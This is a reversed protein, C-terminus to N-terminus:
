RSPPAQGASAIEILRELSQAPSTFHGGGDKVRVATNPVHASLWAGHGAPVMVDRAGYEIVVPARAGEPNFRWPSALAVFDDIFGWPGTRVAEIMALATFGATERLIDLDAKPLQIPGLMTIPDQRAREVLRELDPTLERAAADRGESAARFRRVNEPDMGEFFDLGSADLPAVGVVCHVVTCREPLLTAAALAHPGGGSAGVVGLREVGGADLLATIDAASDAIARGPNPDSLGYGPRDYTLQRIGAERLQDPYPHRALRSGPSGHLMLVPRGDPDGQESWGLRRGDQLVLVNTDTM